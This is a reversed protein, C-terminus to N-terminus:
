QAPGQRIGLHRGCRESPVKERITSIRGTERYERDLVDLYSAIKARAEPTQTKAIIAEIRFQKDSPMQELADLTRKFRRTPDM